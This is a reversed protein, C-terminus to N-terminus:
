TLAKSAEKRRRTNTLVERPVTLDCNLRAPISDTRFGREGTIPPSPNPHPPNAEVVFGRVGLGEGRLVPALPSKQFSSKPDRSVSVLKVLLFSGCWSCCRWGAPRSSRRPGDSATGRSQL